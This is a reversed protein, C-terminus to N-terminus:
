PATAEARDAVFVSPIGLADVKRKAIQISGIKM